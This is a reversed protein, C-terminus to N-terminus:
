MSSRAALGIGGISDLATYSLSSRSPPSAPWGPSAAAVGGEIPAMLRWLGISVLGIMPLQIVHLTVWWRPGFYALAMHEPKYPQEVCLFAFM